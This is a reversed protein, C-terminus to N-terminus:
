RQKLFYDRNIRLIMRFGYICFVTNSFRSVPPVYLYWQAKLTLINLPGRCNRISKASSLGATLQLTANPSDARDPQVHAATRTVKHRWSPTGDCPDYALLALLLGEYREQLFSVSCEGFKQKQLFAKMRRYIKNEASIV